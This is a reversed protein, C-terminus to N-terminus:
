WTVDNCNGTEGVTEIQVTAHAIGHEALTARARELVSATATGARVSLHATASDMGSTVTWVHLDHVGTVGSIDCLDAQVQDLDMDRPAVELLVRIAARGLAVARPVILVAVAAAVIPDAYQWGTTVTVIGAIIAGVSAVTDALVEMSAGKISLAEQAGGRLLLVAWVNGLLGITAAVIMAWGAVAQPHLFRNIAEYLVWIAVGGLLLANALTSLVEIRYLGFTRHGGRFGTAATHVAALTMAVGLVDVAVHGADSLLALSGSIFGVVIELVAIAALIGLVGLLRRRYAASAPAAPNATGHSHGHGV